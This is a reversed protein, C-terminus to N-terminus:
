VIEVEMVAEGGPGHDHASKLACTRAAEVEGPSQFIEVWDEAERRSICGLLVLGDRVDVIAWLLRTGNSALRCMKIEVLPATMIRRKM